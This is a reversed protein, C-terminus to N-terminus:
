ANNLRVQEKEKKWNLSLLKEVFNFVSILANTQLNEISSMAETLFRAPTFLHFLSLSDKAARLFYTLCAWKAYLFSESLAKWDDRQNTTLKLPRSCETSLLLSVM